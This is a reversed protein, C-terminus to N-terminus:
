KKIFIKHDTFIHIKKPNKYKYLFFTTQTTHKSNPQTIPSLISKQQTQRYKTRYKSKTTYTPSISSKVPNSQIKTSHKFILNTHPHVLKYAAPFVSCKNQNKTGGVKSFDTKGWIVSVRVYTKDQIQIIHVFFLRVSTQYFQLM